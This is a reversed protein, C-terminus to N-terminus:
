WKWNHVSFSDFDESQSTVVYDIKFFYTAILFFMLISIFIFFLLVWNMPWIQPM